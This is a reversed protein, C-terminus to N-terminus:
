VKVVGLTCGFMALVQLISELTLNSKGQEIKRIVTLAVGTKAAFDTQTLGVRNRNEKVFKAIRLSEMGKGDGLLEDINHTILLPTVLCSNLLLSNNNIEKQIWYRERNDLDDNISVYELVKVVPAHGILKLEEVWEIVKDSHSKTLHQMPRTMGQTSKGIYHIADTFPCRLSYILRQEQMNYTNQYLYLM